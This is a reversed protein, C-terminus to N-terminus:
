WWHNSKLSIGQKRMAERRLENEASSMKGEDGRGIHKLVANQSPYEGKAHMEAIAKYIKRQEIPLKNPM